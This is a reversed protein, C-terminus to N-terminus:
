EGPLTGDLPLIETILFFDENDWRGVYGKLKMAPLQGVPAALQYKFARMKEKPVILNYLKEAPTTIGLPVAFRYGLVKPKETDMSYAESIFGEMIVSSVKGEPVGAVLVVATLLTFM